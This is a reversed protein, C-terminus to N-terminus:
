MDVKEIVGIWHDPTLKGESFEAMLDFVQDSFGGINLVDVREQAQTHATPSFIL